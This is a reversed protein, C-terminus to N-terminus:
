KEIEKAVRKLENLNVEHLFLFGSAVCLTEIVVVQVVSGAPLALSLSIEPIGVASAPIPVLGSVFYLFGTFLAAKASNTYYWFPVVNVTWGLSSLALLTGFYKLKAIPKTFNGKVTEYISSILRKYPMFQIAKAELWNVQSNTQFYAFVTLWGGINALAILLFPIYLPVRDLAFFLATFMVCMGMVDYFAESLSTTLADQLRVGDRTYRLARSLDPGIWGPVVLGVANGTLRAKFTSTFRLSTGSVMKTIVLDRTSLTAVQGLYAAFFSLLVLPRIGEITAIINLRTVLSYVIIFFPILAASLIVRKDM